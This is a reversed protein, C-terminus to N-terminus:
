LDDDLGAYLIGHFPTGREAMREVVPRHVLDALEETREADFEPM